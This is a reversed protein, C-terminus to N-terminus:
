KGFLYTDYDLHSYFSVAISDYNNDFKFTLCFPQYAM